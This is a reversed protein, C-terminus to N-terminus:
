YYLGLLMQMKFRTRCSRIFQVILDTFIDVDVM